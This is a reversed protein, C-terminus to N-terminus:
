DGRGVLVVEGAAGLALVLRALAQLSPHRSVNQARLLRDQQADVWATAAPALSDLIDQRCAGEQAAYELLEQSYVQWGLKAGARRAISGGRSGSERSVAVTLSAPVGSAGARGGREGRFGHHPSERPAQGGADPEEGLNSRHEPM